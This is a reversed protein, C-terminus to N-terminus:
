QWDRLLIINPFDGHVAQWLPEDATVGPLKLEDAVAVFLADYVPRDYKVAIELARRLHRSAREIQLPVALFDELFQCAQQRSILRRHWRKWVANAAEALGVDVVVLQEGRGVVDDFVRTAQQSDPEALVWKAAVCSDVVVDSM